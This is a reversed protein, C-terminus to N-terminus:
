QFHLEGILVCLQQKSDAPQQRTNAGHKRGAAPMSSLNNQLKGHLIPLTGNAWM